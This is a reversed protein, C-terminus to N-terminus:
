AGGRQQQFSAARKAAKVALGKKVAAELRGSLGSQRRKLALTLFPRPSLVRATATGHKGRTGKIRGGGRAGAELFLAYFATDRVAVGDGSKLPRVRISRALTGTVSVPPQGPASATYRGSKAGRGKASAPLRYPRGSGVGKRIISRAEAAIENGARRLAKKLEAKDYLITASRVTVKIKFDPM